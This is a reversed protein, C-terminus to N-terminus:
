KFTQHSFSVWGAARRCQGRCDITLIIDILWYTRTFQETKTSLKYIM